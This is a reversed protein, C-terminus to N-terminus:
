EGASNREQFTIRVPINMKGPNSFEPFFRIGALIKGTIYRKVPSGSIGLM